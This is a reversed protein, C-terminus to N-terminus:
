QRGSTQLAFAMNVEAIKAFTPGKRYKEEARNEQIHPDREKGVKEMSPLHFDATDESAIFTAL